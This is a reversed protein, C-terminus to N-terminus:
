FVKKTSEIYAKIVSSDINIVGKENFEILRIEKLKKNGLFDIGWEYKFILKYFGIFQKKSNILQFILCNKNKKNSEIISNFFYNMSINKLTDIDKSYDKFFSYDESLINFNKLIANFKWESTKNFLNKHHTIFRLISSIILRIDHNNDKLKRLNLSIDNIEEKYEISELNLKINKGKFKGLYKENYKLENNKIHLGNNSTKLANILIILENFLEANINCIYSKGNNDYLYIQNFENNIETEQYKTKLELIEINKIIKQNQIEKYRIFIYYLIGIPPTSFLLLILPSVSTILQFFSNLLSFILELINKPENNM